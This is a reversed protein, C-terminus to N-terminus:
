KPSRLFKPKRIGVYDKHIIKVYQMMRELTVVTKSKEQTSDFDNAGAPNKNHKVFNPGDIWQVDESDTWNKTEMIKVKYNNIKSNM